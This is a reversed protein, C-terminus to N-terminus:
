TLPKAGRGLCGRWIQLPFSSQPARERAVEWNRSSKSQRYATSTPWTLQSILLSNFKFSASSQPASLMLYPSLGEPQDRGSWRREMQNLASANPPGVCIEQGVPPSTSIPWGRQGQTRGCSALSAIRILTNALQFDSVQGVTNRQLNQLPARRTTIKSIRSFWLFYCTVGKEYPPIFVWPIIM